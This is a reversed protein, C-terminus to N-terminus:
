DLAAILQRLKARTGGLRGGRMQPNTLRTIDEDVYKIARGTGVESAFTTDHGRDVTRRGEEAYMRCHASIAAPSSPTVGQRGSSRERSKM